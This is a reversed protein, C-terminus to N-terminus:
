DFSFGQQTAPAEAKGCKESTRTALQHWDTRPGPHQTGDERYIQITQGTTTHIVTFHRGDVDGLRFKGLQIYRDGVSVGTLEAAKGYTGYDHRPGSFRQGDARFIQATFGNKHSVSLHTDDAAGIRFDGIEVYSSGFSIGSSEGIQRNWAGYDTRPGPHLTGDSGRFIMATQGDKHSISFHWGDVDALRWEGLQIFRDGMPIGKCAKWDIKDIDKESFDSLAEVAKERSGESIFPLTKLIASFQERIDILPIKMAPSEFPGFAMTVGLELQTGTILGELEFSVMGPNKFGFLKHSKPEQTSHNSQSQMASLRRHAASGRWESTKNVIMHPGYEVSALYMEEADVWQMVVEEEAKEDHSSNTQLLNSTQPTVRSMKNVASGSEDHDWMDLGLTSKFTELGTNTNKTTWAHDPGFRKTLRRTVGLVLIGATRVQFRFVSIDVGDPRNKPWCFQIDIEFLPAPLIDLQIGGVFAVVPQVSFAFGVTLCKEINSKSTYFTYGQWKDWNRKMWTNDCPVAWPELQLFKDNSDVQWDEKTVKDSSARTRPAFALCSGTDTEKGAFQTILETTEPGYSGIKIAIAAKADLSPKKDASEGGPQANADAADSAPPDDGTQLASMRRPSNVEFGEYAAQSHTKIILNKSAHHVAPPAGVEPFAATAATQVLSLGKDLATKVITTAIKAFTEVFEKFIEGLRSLFNLPPLERLLRFGMCKILDLAEKGETCDVLDKGLTFAANLGPVHKVIQMGMCEFVNGDGCAAEAMDTGFKVAAKIPEPWPLVTLGFDFDFLTITQGMLRVWCKQKGWTALIGGGFWDFFKISPWVPDECGANWDTFGKLLIQVAMEVTDITTQAVFAVKDAAAEYADATSEAVSKVDEIRDEVFDKADDYIPIGKSSVASDLSATDAKVAKKRKLLMAEAQSGAEFAEARRAGDNARQTDPKAEPRGRSPPTQTPHFENTKHQHAHKTLVRKLTHQADQVRMGEDKQLLSMVSDQYDVHKALGKVTTKLSEIEVQQLECLTELQAMKLMMFEFNRGIEGFGHSANSANTTVNEPNPIDNIEKFEEQLNKAAIKEVKEKITADNTSVIEIPADSVKYSVATALSLWVALWRRCTSAVM